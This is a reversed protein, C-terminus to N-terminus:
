AILSDLFRAIAAVKPLKLADGELWRNKRISNQIAAAPVLVAGMSSVWAKKCKSTHAQGGSTGYEKALETALQGDSLAEDRFSKALEKLKKYNVEGCELLLDELAGTGGNDPLVYLGLRPKGEVVTGPAIAFNLVVPLDQEKSLENIFADRAIEPGPELDQDVIVGVADPQFEALRASRLAAGLAMAAKSGGGVLMVLWRGSNEYFGPVPHRETLLTHKTAPYDRPFLKKLHDPIQDLKKRQHFGRLGILRAMFEADHPGEVLLFIM